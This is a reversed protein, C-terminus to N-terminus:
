KIGEGEKTNNNDYIKIRHVNINVRHLDTVISMLEEHSGISSKKFWKEEEQLVWKLIEKLLPRNTFFEKPLQRFFRWKLADKETIPNCVPLYSDKLAKFIEDWIKRLFDATLRITAGKFNM